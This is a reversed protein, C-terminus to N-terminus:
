FLSVYHLLELRPPVGPHVQEVTVGDLEDRHSANRSATCCHLARISDLFRTFLHDNLRPPPLSVGPNEGPGLLGSRCSSRSAVSQDYFASVGYRM